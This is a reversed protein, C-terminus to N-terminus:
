DGLVPVNGFIVDDIEVTAPRADKAGRLEFRLMVTQGKYASMDLRVRGFEPSITNSEWLLTQSSETVVRLQVVQNGIESIRYEFHLLGSDMGQPVDVTVWAAPPGWPRRVGSLRLVAGRGATDSLASQVDFLSSIEWGQLGLDFQYNPILNDRPLVMWSTQTIEGLRVEVPEPITYGHGSGDVGQFRVQGPEIEINFWGEENADHFAGDALQVRAFPVAQGRLDMVQALLTGVLKNSYTVPDSYAGVNGARDVARVRFWFNGGESVDVVAEIDRTELVVDQWTGGLDRSIQVDYAGVGTGLEGDDGRWKVLVHRKNDEVEVVELSATPPERDFEVVILPPGGVSYDYLRSFNRGRAEPVYLNYNNNGDAAVATYGGSPNIVVAAGVESSLTV